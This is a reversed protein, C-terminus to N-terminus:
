GQTEELAISATFIRFTLDAFSAVGESLRVENNNFISSQVLLPVDNTTVSNVAGSQTAAINGDFLSQHIEHSASGGVWLAGGM